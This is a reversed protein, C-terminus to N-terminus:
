GDAKGGKKVNELSMEVLRRIAAPRSLPERQRSIWSDIAALERPPLRVVVQPAGKGESGEYLTPRGRRKRSGTILNAM